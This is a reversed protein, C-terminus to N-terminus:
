ISGRENGFQLKFCLYASAHCSSSYHGAERRLFYLLMSVEKVPVHMHVSLCGNTGSVKVSLLQV